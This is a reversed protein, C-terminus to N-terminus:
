ITKYYDMNLIKEKFIDNIHALLSLVIINDILVNNDHRNSM